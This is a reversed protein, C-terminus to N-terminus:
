LLPSVLRAARQKMHEYYSRDEFKEKTIVESLETDRFFIKTMEEAAERNYVVANAEFNLSFSRVDMNASGTSFALGDIIVIKAHLFGNRYMYVQVGADLLESAFSLTAAHVFRHDPKDPIM